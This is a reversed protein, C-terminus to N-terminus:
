LFCLSEQHVVFRSLEVAAARSRVGALFVKAAAETPL